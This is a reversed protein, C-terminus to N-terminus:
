RSWIPFPMDRDQPFAFGVMVVDTGPQLASTDRQAFDRLCPSIADPPLEIPIGAVDNGVDLRSQKWVPKGSEDYLDLM